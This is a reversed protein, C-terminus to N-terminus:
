SGEIHDRFLAGLQRAVSDISFHTRVRDLAATTMRRRREDNGIVDVLASALAERDGIDVVLGGCAEGDPLIDRIGHAASAVVPLGCAMAELPAVPMGEIRSASVYLDAASLWQRMAPRDTVYRDIWRVNALGSQTLRDNLAPRDQGDGILILHAPPDTVQKKVLAWADLLVDLGKRYMDIRGHVSLSGRAKHCIM